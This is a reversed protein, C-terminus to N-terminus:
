RVPAPAGDFLAPVTDPLDVFRKALMTDRVELAGAALACGPKLVVIALGLGTGGIQPPITEDVRRFRSCWRPLQDAPSVGTRGCLRARTRLGCVRRRACSGSGRSSAASSLFNAGRSRACSSPRHVRPRPGPNGDRLEVDRQRRAARAITSM